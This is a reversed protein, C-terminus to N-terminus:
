AEVFLADTGFLLIEKTAQKEFCAHLHRTFRAAPVFDPIFAFLFYERDIKRRRFRVPAPVFEALLYRTYDLYDSAVYRSTTFVLLRNEKGSSRRFDARLAIEFPPQVYVTEQLTYVEKSIARLRHFKRRVGEPSALLLSKELAVQPYRYHNPYATFFENITLDFDSDEIYDLYREKMELFLDTSYDEQAFVEPILKEVESGHVTPYTFRFNIGERSLTAQYNCGLTELLYDLRGNGQATEAALGTMALFYEAYDLDSTVNLKFSPVFYHKYTTM